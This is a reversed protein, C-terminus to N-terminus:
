NSGGKQHCAMCAVNSLFMIKPTDDPVTTERPIQFPQVNKDANKIREELLTAYPWQKYTPSLKAQAYIQRATKIDGAKVLMDGMNLFFGEFNHPAIASNWCARKPGKTTAQKMYPAFDVNGRDIKQEACLELTKWQDELGEAFLDSAHAMQSLVYGKTFLNFEPWQDVARHMAYYGKRISAEDKHLDATGMAAAAHFGQFRADRPNLQSAESFFSRALIMDDLQTASRSDKPLRGSEAARWIHLFGIHAATTVDGPQALYHQKHRRLLEPIAAYDGSHLARWFDRTLNPNNTAVSVKEPAVWVAITACNTTSFALIILFTLRRM